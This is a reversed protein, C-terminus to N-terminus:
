GFVVAVLGFVGTLPKAAGGAAGAATTSAGAGASSGTASTTEASGSLSRSVSEEVRSSVESTSTESVSATAVAGGVDRIVTFAGSGLSTAWCGLYGPGSSAGITNVLVATNCYGQDCFLSTSPGAFLTGASCSQWFTCPSSPSCCQALTASTSLTAPYDCTRRDSYQGNSADLWGLLAPDDQRPAVVARPTVLPDPAAAATAIFTAI